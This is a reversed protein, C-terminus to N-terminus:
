NARRGTWIRGPLVQQEGGWVFHTIRWEGDTLKGALEPPPAGRERWAIAIRFTSDAKVTGILPRFREVDLMVNGALARIVRGHFAAGTASNVMISLHPGGVGTPFIDWTGVM